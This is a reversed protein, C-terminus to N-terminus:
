PVVELLWRQTGAGTYSYQRLGVGDALISGTYTPGGSVTLAKGSHRALFVVTGSGADSISWQQNTSGDYAWQHIRAADLTSASKVDMVRGSHRAVIKYYGLGVDVIRWQQNTQGEYTWQHVFYGNCCGANEVDAVKNTALNRIVYYVNPNISVTHRPAQPAKATTPLDNGCAGAFVVGSALLLIRAFARRGISSM